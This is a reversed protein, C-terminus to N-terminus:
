IFVWFFLITATLFFIAFLVSIRFATSLENWHLFLKTIGLLIILSNFGTLIVKPTLFPSKQPYKALVITLWQIIITAFILFGYVAFKKRLSQDPKKIFHSKLSLLASFVFIWIFILWHFISTYAFGSFLLVIGVIILGISFADYKNM